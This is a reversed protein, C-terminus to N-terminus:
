KSVLQSELSVVLLTVELIDYFIDIIIDCIKLNTFKDFICFYKSMM